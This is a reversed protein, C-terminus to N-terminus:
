SQQIRRYLGASRTMLGEDVFGRRITATDSYRRGIIQNVEPEPYDLDMDFDEVLFKLVLIQRSHQAPMQQLLRGKFFQAIEGPVSTGASIGAEARDIEIRLNDLPTLDLHLLRLHGDRETRILGAAGLIGVAKGISASNTDLQNALDAITMGERSVALMTELMTRDRLAVLFEALALPVPVRRAEDLTTMTIGLGTRCTGLIHTLVM